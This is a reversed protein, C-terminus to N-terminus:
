DLLRGRERELVKRRTTREPPEVDLNGDRPLDLEKWKM